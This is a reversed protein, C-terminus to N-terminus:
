RGEAPAVHQDGGAVWTSTESACASSWPMPRTTHRPAVQEFAGRDCREEAVALLEGDDGIVAAAEDDLEPHGALEEDPVAAAAPIVDVGHPPDRLGGEWLSPFPTPSRANVPM